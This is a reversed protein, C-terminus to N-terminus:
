KRCKCGLAAEWMAWVRWRFEGIQVLCPCSPGALDLNSWGPVLCTWSPGGPVLLALQDQGTCQGRRKQVELGEGVTPTLTPLAVGGPGGGGGWWLDEDEEEKEEKHGMDM